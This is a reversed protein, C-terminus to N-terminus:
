GAARKYPDPPFWGHEVVRDAWRGLQDLLADLDDALAELVPQQAADTAAEVQERLALGAETLAPGDVLGHRQLTSDAAAMQEPSWGRSGAYAQPEWGIWRETLLNAQIGDVGAAVLAALHSDGRHERLLSCALWLQAWPDEPEELGALGSFLARGTGDGTLAASRLTRAVTAVDDTPEGLVTRLAESVGAVRAARVETLTCARRGADYAGAVLSPEFVGFAAAVVGADPEGLVSARGWVYGSLFDLGQAALADYAPESWYVIGALPEVADRLRRAPTTWTLAAAEGERPAFFAERAETYDM